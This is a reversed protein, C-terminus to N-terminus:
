LEKFDLVEIELSKYQSGLLETADVFATIVGKNYTLPKILTFTTNSITGVKSKGKVIHIKMKEEKIM